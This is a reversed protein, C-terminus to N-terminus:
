EGCRKAGKPQAGRCWTEPRYLSWYEHPRFPRHYGGRTIERTQEREELLQTGKWVRDSFILGGASDRQVLVKEPWAALTVEGPAGVYRQPPFDGTREVPPATCGLSCFGTLALVALLACIASVRNFGRRRYGYEVPRKEVIVAVAIWALLYAIMILLFELAM